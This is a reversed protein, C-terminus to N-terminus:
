RLRLLTTTTVAATAAFKPLTTFAAPIYHQQQQRQKDTRRPSKKGSQAKKQTSEDNTAAPEDDDDDISGTTLAAIQPGADSADGAAGPIEGRAVSAGDTVQKKGQQAAIIRDIDADWHRHAKAAMGQLNFVALSAIAIVGLVAGVYGVIPTNLNTTLKSM